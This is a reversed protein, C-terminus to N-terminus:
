FATDPLEEPQVPCYQALSPPVHRKQRQQEEQLHLGAIRSKEPRGSM